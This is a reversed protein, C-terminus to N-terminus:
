KVKKSYMSSIADKNLEVKRACISNTCKPLKDLAVLHNNGESYLFVEVPKKAMYDFTINCQIDNQKTILLPQIRVRAENGPLGLRSRRFTKGHLEMLESWASEEPNLFFANHFNENNIQKLKKNWVEIENCILRAEYFDIKANRFVLISPKPTRLHLSHM